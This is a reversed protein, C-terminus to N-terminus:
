ESREIVRPSREVLECPIGKSKFYEFVRRTEENDYFNVSLKQRTVDSPLLLDVRLESSM